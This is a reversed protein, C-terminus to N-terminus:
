SRNSEWWDQCRDAIAAIEPSISDFAREYGLDSLLDGAIAEFLELDRASMATRWDRLGTTPPLWAKKASLGPKSRTKGEHYAVMQPAFPLDLFGALEHLSEEPRAVVDEYKVESYKTPDLMRGDRRGTSVHWQWYLASVGVPEEQWLDYKVPGKDWALLSLAVDRGDRILHISRAGPFLSHLRPLHQVYGPTKEGVLSKGRQRGYETYLASVFESYTDATASADRVADASLNLNGFRRHGRM